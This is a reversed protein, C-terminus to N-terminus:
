KRADERLRGREGEVREMERRLRNAEGKHMDLESQWNALAHKLQASSAAVEKRCNALDVQMGRKESESSLKM